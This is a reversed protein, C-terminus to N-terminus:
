YNMHVNKIDAIAGSGHCVLCQENSQLAITAGQTGASGNASLTPVNQRQTYWVGGNNTMHAVATQTDHCAACAATIPSAVASQGYNTPQALNWAASPTAPAKYAVTPGYVATSDVWPTGSPFTPTGTGGAGTAVTDWLMGPIQGANTANSFDYSGAVHCAECDNLLGPYTIGPFNGQLTYPNNRM